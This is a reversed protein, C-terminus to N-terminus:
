EGWGLFTRDKFSTNLSSSPNGIGASLAQSFLSKSVDIPSNLFDSSAGVNLRSLTDLAIVLADVQDDHPSSPFQSLELLFDELWHASEPILVRGSEILPLISNARAVKDSQSRYAIVSIGSDNKLEQILSQGSAKDEIYLGRLGFGRWRAATVIAIRKLEPFDYKKRIVDLIYIDGNAAVAAVVLVSYDSRENKKFATDAAIILSVFNDPSESYRRFLSPKILNGGAVFPTQQYLAAFERQDKRQFKRLEAIPFREPWLAREEIVPVYRDPIKLLEAEDQPKFRADDQPLEWVPTREETEVEAIAPFNIHLWEGNVWEESQMIRGALDDPHWRTHIIIEIPPTGDREPQKRTLLASIYYSYINNRYTPSDAEARAKIPDDIILLNAARGSTTGGIGVAYYVGNKSTRWVDAAKSDDSLSFDPFAQAVIPEKAHERVSRGFGKALEANYSVSMIERDPKRAMYYVPFLETTFFTKGHRPPMNIVVRRCPVGAPTLLTGKELKDLIDILQLQFPALKYKPYLAQVFGLFSGSAIKVALLHRAVEQPTFDSM